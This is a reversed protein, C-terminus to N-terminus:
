SITYNRDPNIDHSAIDGKKKFEADTIKKGNEYRRWDMRASIKLGTKTIVDSIPNLIIGHSVLPM